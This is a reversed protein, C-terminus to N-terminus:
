GGPTPTSQSAESGAGAPTETAATSSTESSSPSSTETSSTSTTQSAASGTSPAEQGAPGGGAAVLGAALAAAGAETTTAHESSSGTTGQAGTTPQTGPAFGAAPREPLRVDVYSAGASSPDSLVRALSLWKAHPRSADGFYITLPGKMTVTLGKPGTFARVLLKAFPAPAAGLATLVATLSGDRVHEGTAPASGAAVTPLSSSLLAPGLVAGDAAVATRVAGAVLVAVPPQEIVRIDLGHPFSASAQVDRVVGFPAVAARLAGFQVDLTSMGRAAGVLAADIAAADAGHVGSLHVHEVSVLASHRLWLWGGALPPAGVVLVLLAIRLRRRRALLALGAAPLGTWSSLAPWRSGPRPSAQPRRASGARGRGGATRQGRRGRSASPRGIGPWGALSRDM